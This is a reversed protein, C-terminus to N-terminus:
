RIRERRLDGEISTITSCFMELELLDGIRFNGDATVTRAGGAPEWGEGEDVRVEGEMVGSAADARAGEWTGKFKVAGRGGSWRSWLKGTCERGIRCRHAEGSRRGRSCLVAIEAVGETKM